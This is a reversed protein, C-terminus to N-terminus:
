RMKLVATPADKSLPTAKWRVISRGGTKTAGEENNQSVIEADTDLTFTGDLYSAANSMGTSAGLGGTQDKSSDNAFGPAKVRVTGGQRIEVLVFPFVAEADSNFPFLFNHSLNGSAAYDINFKGKGVYTVSRYGAEKALAAAIGRNKAEIQAKNEASEHNDPAGKTKASAGTPLAGIAGSAPTPDVAIVEGKYTFAFSRDANISLTSVFKGPTLLCGSLLLPAVLILLLRRFCRDM